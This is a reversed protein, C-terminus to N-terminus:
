EPDEGRCRHREPVEGRQPLRVDDAHQRVRRDRLAAEDEHRERDRAVALRSEDQSATTM